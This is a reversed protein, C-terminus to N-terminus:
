PPDFLVIKNPNMQNHPDIAFKIQRMLDIEVKSAYICLEDRKSLGIGHEASISGKMGVVLDHVIRGFVKQKKLFSKQDIGVPQTLNFHINGDGVHGFACVRVGPMEAMVLQTAKKIFEVSKSVPVAVDHKLSGGEISQAAPIEERMKWLQSAQAQSTAIVADSIVGNNLAQELVTEIEGRLDDEQRPSTLELLAYYAHKETFPDRIGPIHAVELELALRPILEFAMLKDGCTARTLDFLSLIEDLEELAVLITAFARPRPYLKFLQKLDYGTNDKRLAKLNENILGNPLVVEIGLVLDRANGYHLVGVGGANTSLNGGIQCSGEAGLSLPFLCGAEDAAKQINALICGAEVTMTHNLTDIQIIRNLKELSLIVGGSAIGGGVLGTNGGLPVVPVRHKACLGVTESIEETTNPRIVLSCDSELLGREDKLYPLLDETETLVANRGLLKTLEKLFVNPLQTM